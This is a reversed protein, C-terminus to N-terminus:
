RAAAGASTGAWAPADSAPFSEDNARDVADYAKTRGLYREAYRQLTDFDDAGAAARAAIAGGALAMLAGTVGRRRLGSLALATGATAVMWRGASPSSLWDLRTSDDRDWVSPGRPPALNPSQIETM